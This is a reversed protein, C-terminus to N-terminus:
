KNNNSTSVTSKFFSGIVGLTGCVIPLMDVTFRETNFLYNLGNVVTDGILWTLINGTIWGGFYYLVPGLILSVVVLVIATICGAAVNNREKM